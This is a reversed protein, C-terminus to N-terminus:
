LYFSHFGIFACTSCITSYFYKVLYNSICIFQLAIMQGGQHFAVLKLHLITSFYKHQQQMNCTAHQLPVFAFYVFLLSFQAIIRRCRFVVYLYIAHMHPMYMHIVCILIYTYVCIFVYIGKCTISLTLTHFCITLLLLVQNCVLPM